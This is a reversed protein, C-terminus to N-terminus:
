LNWIWLIFYTETSVFRIIVVLWNKGYVELSCMNKEARGAIILNDTAKIAFDEDDSEDKFILSILSHHM